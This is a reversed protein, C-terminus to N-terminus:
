TFREPHQEREHREYLCFAGEIVAGVLACVTVLGALVFLSELLDLEGM